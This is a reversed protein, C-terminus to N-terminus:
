AGRGETGHWVIACPLSAADGSPQHQMRPLASGWKGLSGAAGQLRSHMGRTLPTWVFGGLFAAEMAGQSISSSWRRLLVDCSSPFSPRSWRLCQLTDTRGRGSCLGQSGAHCRPVTVV